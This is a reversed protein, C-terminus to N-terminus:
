NVNLPSQNTLLKFKEIPRLGKMNKGEHYRHYNYWNVYARLTKWPRGPNLYYEDDVSRNAREVKGNWPASRKPIFRHTIEQQILYEAFQGRFESGNDTQVGTIPFPFYKQAQKFVHVAAASSKDLCDQAYQMDTVTDILRFQYNWRGDLAPVYKADYQVNEGPKLAKYPEKMPTYWPQKKQPKKILRRSKYYRYIITSSVKIGHDLLFLRMKNPGYNYKLKTEYILLKIGPTLKLDPHAKRAHYNHDEPPHDKKYWKYYTKKSIGFIKCIEPVSMAYIEVQLYWRFRVEKPASLPSGAM